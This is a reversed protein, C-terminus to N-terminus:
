YTMEFILLLLPVYAAIHCWMRGIELNKYNYKSFFFTSLNVLMMIYSIPYPLHLSIISLVILFLAYVYESKFITSELTNWQWHLAPTSKKTVLTYDIIKYAEISYVFAVILYTFIVLRTINNLPIYKNILYALVLPQLHNTIMALKTFSYNVNNKGQNDQLSHWFIADYIQMLTVFAFFLALQQFVERNETHNTFQNKYLLLSSLMGIITANISSNKNYCM